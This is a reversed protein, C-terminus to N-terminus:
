LKYDERGVAQAVMQHLWIEQLRKAGPGGAFQAVEMLLLASERNSFYKLDLTQDLLFQFISHSGLPPFIAHPLISRM